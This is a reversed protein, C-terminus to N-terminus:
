CTFVRVWYTVRNYLLLEMTAMYRAREVRVAEIFDDIM